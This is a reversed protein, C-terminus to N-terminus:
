FLCREIKPMLWGSKGPGYRGFSGAVYGQDGFLRERPFVGEGARQLDFPV